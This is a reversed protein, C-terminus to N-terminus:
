LDTDELTFFVFVALACLTYAALVLSFILDYSWNLYHYPPWAVGRALCWSFVTAIPFATWLAIPEDTSYALTYGGLLGRLYFVRVGRGPDNWYAAAGMGARATAWVAVLIIGALTPTDPLSTWRDAIARILWETGVVAATGAAVTVLASIWFEWRAYFPASEARLRQKREEEAKAKAQMAASRAERAAPDERFMSGSWTASQRGYVSGRRMQDPQTHTQPNAPAVGLSTLAEVLQHADHDWREHSVPVRQFGLVSHLTTPIDSPKPWNAREYLVPVIPLDRELAAELEFRVHDEEYLLKPKGKQRSNWRTTILTVMVPRDDLVELVKTKWRQGGKVQDFDLFVTQAGFSATLEREINRAFDRDTRRYCIFIKYGV